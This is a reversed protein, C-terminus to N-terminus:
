LFSLYTKLKIGNQIRILILVIAITVVIVLIIIIIVTIIIFITITNFSAHYNHHYHHCSCYHKLRSHDLHWMSIIAANLFTQTQLQYTPRWITKTCLKGQLNCVKVLLTHFSSYGDMLACVEYSIMFLLILLWQKSHYLVFRKRKVHTIQIGM